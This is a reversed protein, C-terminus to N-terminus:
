NCPKPTTCDTCYSRESCEMKVLNFMKGNGCKKTEAIANKQCLYYIEQQKADVAYGGDEIGCCPGKCDPLTKITEVCGPNYTVCKKKSFDYFKDGCNELKAEGGECTYYQHCSGPVITQFKDPRNRCLNRKLLGNNM